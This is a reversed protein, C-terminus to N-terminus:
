EIKPGLRNCVFKLAGLCLLISLINIISHPTTSYQHQDTLYPNKLRVLTGTMWSHTVVSATPLTLDLSIQCIIFTLSRTSVNNNNNNNKGKFLVLDLTRNMENPVTNYSNYNYQDLFNLFANTTMDLRSTNDSNFPYYPLNFDGLLLVNKNALTRKEELYNILFNIMGIKTPPPLYLLAIYMSSFGMNVEVWIIQMDSSCVSWEDIMTPQLEPKIGLMIGGGKLHGTIVEDRDQRFVVYRNDFFESDYFEQNLGSETVAIIDHNQSLINEYFYHVKGRLGNVNQYTIEIAKKKNKNPHNTDVTTTNNLTVLNAHNAKRQSSSAKRRSPIIVPISYQINNRKPSTVNNIASNSQHCTLSDLIYPPTNNKTHHSSVEVNQHNSLYTPFDYLISDPLMINDATNIIKENTTRNNNKETDYIIISPDEITDKQTEKVYNPKTTNIHSPATSNVKDHCM